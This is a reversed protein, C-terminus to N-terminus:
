TQLGWLQHAVFIMLGAAQSPLGAVPLGDSVTM